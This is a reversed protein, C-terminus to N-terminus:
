RCRRTVRCDATQMIVNGPGFIVEFDTRDAGTRQAVGTAEVLLDTAAGARGQRAAATAGRLLLGGYVGLQATSVRGTPQVAEAGAASVREADVFRGQRMLLHGFYCYVSAARLPDPACATLRPAERAAVHGLDAADLRVLTGATIQHVQAALDAARGSEVAPAVHAVAQADALLRPLLAGLLAYKGAFYAGWAYSVARELETLDPADADDLEGLLEDVSTLADRIAGVPSQDDDTAQTTESHGFLEAM